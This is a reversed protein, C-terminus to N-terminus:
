DNGAVTFNKKPQSGGNITVSLAGSPSFTCNPKTPTITYKGSLLNDFAYNGNADTTVSATAAGSLSMTVGSVGAGGSTTVRGSITYVEPPLTTACKESTLVSKNGRINYASVAYCHKTSPQLGTITLTAGTAEGALNRGEYIRYGAVRANPTWSLEIKSSSVATATLGTPMTPSTMNTESSEDDPDPVPAEEDANAANGAQLIKSFTSVPHILALLIIASVVMSFVKFFLRSHSQMNPLSSIPSQHAM